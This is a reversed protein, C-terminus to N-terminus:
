GQLFKEYAGSKFTSWPKFTNGAQSYVNFAETANTAPDFLADAPFEHHKKHYVQWLGYSGEGEPTCAQTEPNYARPDGGSEALAVAAATDSDAGFGAAQALALIESYGLKVGCEETQCCCHCCGEAQNEGQGFYYIVAVAAVLILGPVM